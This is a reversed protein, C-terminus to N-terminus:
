LFSLCKIPQEETVCVGYRSIVKFIYWLIDDKNTQSKTITM